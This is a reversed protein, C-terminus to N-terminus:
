HKRGDPSGTMSKLLTRTWAVKLAELIERFDLGAEFALEVAATINVSLRAGQADIEGEYGMQRSMEILEEDTFYTSIIEKIVTTKRCFECM